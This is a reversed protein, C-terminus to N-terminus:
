FMSRSRNAGLRRGTVGHPTIQLWVNHVGEAWPLPHHCQMRRLLDPVQELEVERGAGRIIVSWGSREPEEIHDVEFALTSQSMAARKVGGEARIVIDSGALAYNVPVAVPGEDDEYVLRGISAQGLLAFCEDPRLTELKRQAM